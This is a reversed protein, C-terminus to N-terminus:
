GPIYILADLPISDSGSFKVHHSHNQFLKRLPAQFATEQVVCMSRAETLHFFM